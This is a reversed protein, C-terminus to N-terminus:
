VKDQKVKIKSENGDFYVSLALSPTKDKIVATILELVRKLGNQGNARFKWLIANNDRSHNKRIDSLTAHMEPQLGTLSFFSRVKYRTENIMEREITVGVTIPTNSLVWKIQLKQVEDVLKKLMTSTQRLSRMSKQNLYPIMTMVLDEEELPNLIETRSAM